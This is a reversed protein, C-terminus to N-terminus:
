MSTGQPFSFSLSDNTRVGEGIFMGVPMNTPAKLFCTFFTAKFVPTDKARVTVTMLCGMMQRPSPQITIESSISVDGPLLSAREYLARATPHMRGDSEFRTGVGSPQWTGTPQILLGSDLSADFMVEMDEATVTPSDNKIVFRLGVDTQDPHRVICLFGTSNIRTPTDPTSNSSIMFTNTLPVLIWPEDNAFVSVQFHPSPKPEFPKFNCVAAIGTALIFICCVSISVRPAKFLQSLYYHTIAYSILLSGAFGALHLSDHSELFYIWLWVSILANEGFAVWQPRTLRKMWKKAASPKIPQAPNLQPKPKQGAEKGSHKKTSAESDSKEPTSSPILEDAM